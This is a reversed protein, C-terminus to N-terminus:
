QRHLSHRSSNPSDRCPPVLLGPLIAGFFHGRTVFSAREIWSVEQDRADFHVTELFGGRRLFHKLPRLAMTASQNGGQFIDGSKLISQVTHLFREDLPFGVIM